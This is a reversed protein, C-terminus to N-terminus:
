TNGRTGDKSRDWRYGRETTEQLKVCHSDGKRGLVKTTPPLTRARCVRDTLKRDTMSRLGRTVCQLLDVVPGVGSDKEITFFEYM